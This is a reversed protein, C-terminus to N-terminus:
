KHLSFGFSRNKSKKKKTTITNHRWFHSKGTNNHKSSVELTDTGSLLLITLPVEKLLPFHGNKNYVSSPSPQYNLLAPLKLSRSSSPTPPTNSMDSISREFLSRQPSLGLINYPPSSPHTQEIPSQQPTSSPRCFSNLEPIKQIAALSPSFGEIHPTTHESQQMQKKKQMIRKANILVRLSRIQLSSANSLSASEYVMAATSMNLMQHLAHIALKKLRDLKFFDGLFLLRSLILPQHQQATVLDNTYIFQLFAILVSQTDPFTLAHSDADKKSLPDLLAQVMPWRQSLITSNVTFTKRDITVITLDSIIPNKLMSLGLNQGVTSFSPLPPKYIGFVEIDVCALYEFCHARSQYDEYMERKPHGFVLFKNKMDYLAGRLWSGCSLGTGTEIKTWSISNMDLVWVQFQRTPGNIYTGALIFHQGCMFAAPFRLPPPLLCNSSPNTDITERHPWPTKTLQNQSNLYWTSFSQGNKSSHHNSYVHISLGSSKTAFSSRKHSHENTTSSSAFPMLSVGAAASRYVGYQLKQSFNSFVWTRSKCNFIHIESLYNNQIDQGGMIVLKEGTLTSIHAYRKTPLVQDCFKPYEWILGKIDLFLIDDLTDLEEFLMSKQDSHRKATMGGYIVIHTNSYVNASHFYRPIPPVSHPSVLKWTMTQLSLIYLRNSIQRNSQM